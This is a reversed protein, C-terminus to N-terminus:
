LGRINVFVTALKQLNEITFGALGLTHIVRGHNPFHNTPVEIVDFGVSQIAQIEAVGVVSALRGLTSRAGFTRRFDAAAQEPTGGILVSFGPPDLKEEAPKLVLNNEDGGGIRHAFEGGQLYVYQV